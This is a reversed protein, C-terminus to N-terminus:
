LLSNKSSSSIMFLQLMQKLIVIVRMLFIVRQNSKIVELTLFTFILQKDIFVIGSESYMILKLKFM